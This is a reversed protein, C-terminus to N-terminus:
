TSRYGVWPLSADMRRGVGFEDFAGIGRRGVIVYGDVTGKCILCEFAQKAEETVHPFQEAWFLDEDPDSAFDIRCQQCDVANREVVHATAEPERLIIYELSEPHDCAVALAAAQYDRQYREHEDDRCSSCLNLAARTETCNCRPELHLDVQKRRKFPISM